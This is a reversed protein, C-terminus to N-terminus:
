EGLKIFSMRLLQFVCHGPSLYQCSDYRNQKSLQLSLFLKFTQLEKSSKLVTQIERLNKNGKSKM